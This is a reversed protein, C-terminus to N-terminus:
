IKEADDTRVTKLACPSFIELKKKNGWKLSPTESM